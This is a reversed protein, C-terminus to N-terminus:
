SKYCRIVSFKITQVYLRLEEFRLLTVCTSKDKQTVYVENILGGELIQFFLKSFEGSDFSHEKASNIDSRNGCVNEMKEDKSSLDLQRDSGIDDDSNSYSLQINNANSKDITILRYKNIDIASHSAEGEDKSIVNNENRNLNSGSCGGEGNMYDATSNHSITTMSEHLPDVNNTTLKKGHSNNIHDKSLPVTTEVTSTTSDLSIISKFPENNNVPRDPTDM